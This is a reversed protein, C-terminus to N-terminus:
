VPIIEKVSETSPAPNVDWILKSEGVVPVNNRRFDPLVPYWVPKNEIVAGLTGGEILTGGALRVTFAPALTVKLTEALPVVGSEYWHLFSPKLM